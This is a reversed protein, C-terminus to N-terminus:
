VRYCGDNRDSHGVDIVVSGREEGVLEVESYSLMRCHTCRDTDDRSCIPICRWAIVQRVKKHVRDM